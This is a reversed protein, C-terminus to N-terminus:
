NRASQVNKRKRRIQKEIAMEREERRQIVMLDYPDAEEDPHNDLWENVYGIEAEFSKNFEEFYAQDVEYKSRRGYWVIGIGTPTYSTRLQIYPDINAEDCNTIFIEAVSVSQLTDTPTMQLGEMRQISNEVYVDPIVFAAIPNGDVDHSKHFWDRPNASNAYFGEDFKKDHLIMYSDFGEDFTIRYNDSDDNKLFDIFNSIIDRKFSFWDSIRSFLSQGQSSTADERGIRLRVSLDFDIM